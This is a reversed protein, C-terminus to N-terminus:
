AASLLVLPAAQLLKIWIFRYTSSGKHNGPENVMRRQATDFFLADM